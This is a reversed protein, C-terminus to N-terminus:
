SGSPAIVFLSASCGPRSGAEKKKATIRYATIPENQFIHSAIQQKESRERM